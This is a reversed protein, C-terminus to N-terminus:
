NNQQRKGHAIDQRPFQGVLWYSPLRWGDRRQFFDNADNMPVIADSQSRYADLFQNGAAFM